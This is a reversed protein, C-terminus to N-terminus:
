LRYGRCDATRILATTTLPQPSRPWTPRSLVTSLQAGGRVGVGWVGWLRGGSCSFGCALFSLFFPAGGSLRYLSAM